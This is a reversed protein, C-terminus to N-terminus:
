PAAVVLYPCAYGGDMIFPADSNLDVAQLLTLSMMHKPNAMFLDHKTYFWCRQGIFQRAQVANDKTFRLYPSPNSM